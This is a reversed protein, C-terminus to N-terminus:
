QSITPQQGHDSSPDTEIRLLWSRLTELRWAIKTTISQRAEWRSFSPWAEIAPVLLVWRELLELSYELKRNM